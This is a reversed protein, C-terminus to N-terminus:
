KFGAEPASVRIDREGELYRVSLGPREIAEFFSGVGAYRTERHDGWRSAISSAYNL